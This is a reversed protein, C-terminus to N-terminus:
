ILINLSSFIIVFFPIKTEGDITPVDKKKSDYVIMTEVCPRDDLM